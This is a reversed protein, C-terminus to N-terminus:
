LEGYLRSPMTKFLEVLQQNYDVDVMFRTDSVMTCQGNIVQSSAFFNKAKLPSPRNDRKPTRMVGSSDKDYKYRSVDQLKGNTGNHSERSQASQTPVGNSSVNSSGAANNQTLKQAKRQLALLRKQEIQDQSYSTGAFIFIM